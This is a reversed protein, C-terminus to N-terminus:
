LSFGDYILKILTSGCFLVLKLIFFKDKELLSCNTPPLGSFSWGFERLVIMGDRLTLWLLNICNLYSSSTYRENIPLIDRRLLCLAPTILGSGSLM